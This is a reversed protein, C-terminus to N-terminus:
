DLSALWFIMSLCVFRNSAKLLHEPGASSTAAMLAAKSSSGNVIPAMEGSLFVGTETM